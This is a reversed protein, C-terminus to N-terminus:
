QLLESLAKWDLEKRIAAFLALDAAPGGPHAHEYAKVQENVADTWKFWGSVIIIQVASPDLHPDFLDKNLRVVPRAQLDTPNSRGSPPSKEGLAATFRCYAPATRERPPLVALEQELKAINSRYRERIEASAYSPPPNQQGERLKSRVWEEQTVPIWLPQERKTLVVIGDDLDYLPFGAVTGIRRPAGYMADPKREALPREFAMHPTNIYVGVGGSAEGQDVRCNGQSCFLGPHLFGVSYRAPVVDRRYPFQAPTWTPYSGVTAHVGILVGEPPPGLSPVHRFIADIRQLTASMARFGADAVTDDKMRYVAFKTWSGPAHAPDAIASQPPGAARGSRAQALAANPPATSGAVLMWLIPAVGRLLFDFTTGRM